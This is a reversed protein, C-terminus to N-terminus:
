GITNEPTILEFFVYVFLLNGGPIITSDFSKLLFVELLRLNPQTLRIAILCNSLCTQTLSFTNSKIRSKKSFHPSLSFSIKRGPFLSNCFYKLM